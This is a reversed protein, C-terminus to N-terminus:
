RFAQKLMFIITSVWLLKIHLIEQKLTVVQFSFFLRRILWLAACEERLNKKMLNNRLVPKSGKGNTFIFYPPNRSTPYLEFLLINSNSTGSFMTAM